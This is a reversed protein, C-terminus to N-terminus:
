ASALSQLGLRLINISANLDRDLIVGCCPCIYTRDSLPMKQRHGCESCTQSTYAPNVKIFQRGAWEAKCALLDSFMRWAADSISKALCRNHLMNNISLDEVAIIQNNNVVKRANQHAFNHRKFGTREHVRAVAKRARQRVKTGKDQRSLRRSVRALEKEEQRFFRPNEITEGNSLSAFTTLGVDIGVQEERVPLTTPEWECSFAAYWKGTSSKKITVTKPTGELPRHLVLKVNGIKSLQLQSGSLKVGNKYQPYCFSDYRNASRFRPYGPTEGAKIRRFFAQFALDVRLNVNQLVQGYVINLSPQEEKLHPIYAQQSYLGVKIKAEDYYINRQELLTNYLWRCQDLTANLKSEQSKTPYIRYIFTKKM